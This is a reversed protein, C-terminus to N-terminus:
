SVLQSQGANNLIITPAQGFTEQAINFGRVISDDDTVDM